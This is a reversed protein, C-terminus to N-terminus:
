AGSRKVNPNEELLVGYCKHCRPCELGWLKARPDVVGVWEHGCLGCRLHGVRGLRNADLDLVDGM